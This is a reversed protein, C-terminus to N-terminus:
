RKGSYQVISKPLKILETNLETLYSEACRRHHARFLTKATKYEMYTLFQMGRPRGDRLWQRRKGRMVAHLNKLVSDWYPKLFPKFKTKPLRDSAKLISDTIHSYHRNLSDQCNLGDRDSHNLLLAELDSRYSM